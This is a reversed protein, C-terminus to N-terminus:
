SKSKVPCARPDYSPIATTSSTPPALAGNDTYGPVASSTLLVQSVLTDLSIPSASPASASTLAAPAVRQSGAPAVASTATAHTSLTGGHVQFDTGTVVTVDAGDTTTGVGLSVAGSLSALVREAQALHGASYIVSTESIPGVPAQESHGLVKYGLTSLQTATHATAASSGIGGLVSVMVSGPRLSVGANPGGMFAAIAQQDQPESPFVLDGYNYGKYIYPQTDEVVPLTTEPSSALNTGHFNLILNLMESLGFSTDVQLQPAIAGLLSNDAIPNGLGRKAVASALVKLFVHDREIRGIDGSGDYEAGSASYNGAKIAAVNMKQGATWYYMHRARVLALAQFGSLYVCGTHTVDLQSYNDYVRDPFYMHVGGLADVVNAFTDFNLVVYHNIPVGFDQEVAAVLQSPGYALASDIRNYQGPRANPIFTDRPFSLLTVRHTKPNLRVVMVVDSNVGNVGNQCLGFAPNQKALACRSTSGVLLIDEVGGTAAVPTLNKVKLHQIQGSRYITYGVLGGIIVVIILVISIGTRTLRRRLKSRLAKKARRRSRWARLRSRRSQGPAAVTDAPVDDAAGSSPPTDVM